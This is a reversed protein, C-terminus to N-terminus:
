RQLPCSPSRSFDKRGLEEYPLNDKQLLAIRTFKCFLQAVTSLNRHIPQVLWKLAFAQHQLM